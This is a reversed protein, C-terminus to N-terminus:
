FELIVRFNQSLGLCELIVLELVLDTKQKMWERMQIDYDEEWM